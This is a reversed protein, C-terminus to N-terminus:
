RFCERRCSLPVAIAQQYYALAPICQDLRQLREALTGADIARAPKVVDPFWSLDTREAGQRAHILAELFMLANTMAPNRRVGDSLQQLLADGLGHSQAFRLREKIWFSNIGAPRAALWEDIKEVTWGSDLWHKLLRNELTLDHIGDAFVEVFYGSGGHRGPM